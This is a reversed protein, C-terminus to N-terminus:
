AKLRGVDRGMWKARLTFVTLTTGDVVEFNVRERETDQGRNM